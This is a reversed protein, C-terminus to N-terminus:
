SASAPLPRREVCLRLIISSGVSELLVTSKNGRPPVWGVSEPQTAGCPTFQASQLAEEFADLPPMVFDASIRFFSASKFM